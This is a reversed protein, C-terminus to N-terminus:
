NGPPAQFVRSQEEVSLYSHLPLVFLPNSEDLSIHGGIENLHLAAVSDVADCDVDDDMEHEFSVGTASSKCSVKADYNDLKVRKKSAGSTSMSQDTTQQGAFLQFDHFFLGFHFSNWFIKMRGSNELQQM